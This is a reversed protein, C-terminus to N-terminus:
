LQSIIPNCVSHGLLIVWGIVVRYYIFPYASFLLVRNVMIWLGSAMKKQCGAWPPFDLYQSLTMSSHEPNSTTYIYPIQYITIMESNWCCFLCVIVIPPVDTQIELYFFLTSSGNAGTEEVKIKRFMTESLLAICTDVTHIDAKKFGKQVTDSTHLLLHTQKRMLIHLYALDSQVPSCLVTKWFNQLIRKWWRRSCLHSAWLNQMCSMPSVSVTCHQLTKTTGPNVMSYLPLTLLGRQWLPTKCLTMASAAPLLNAGKLVFFWTQCLYVVRGMHQIFKWKM